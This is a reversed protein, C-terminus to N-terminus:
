KLQINALALVTIEGSGRVYQYGKVSFQKGATFNNTFSEGVEVKFTFQKAEGTVGDKTRLQATAVITLVGEEVSSSVVTANTYLTDSYQSIFAESSNFTLLYDKQVPATYVKPNNAGFIVDYQVDSVQFRGGYYQIVGVIRYLHGLPM